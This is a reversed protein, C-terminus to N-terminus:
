AAETHQPNEAIQLGRLGVLEPRPTPLNFGLGVKEAWEKRYEVDQLLQAGYRSSMETDAHGHWYNVLIMRAESRQLVAERFRRFANFRINTRGIEKLVPQLSDRFINTPGLMTGTATEFLFGQKRNGVFDALLRALSSHLDIERFGTDTKPTFEIGGKKGRQQRISVISCDASLHKDIELALVESIRMGTGALLAFLVRYRGKAKSVINTVEKPTLTPRHQERPNVRPLCIATLDWERPYIQKLKADVASKIVKQVVQFYSVITKDKFRPQGNQVSSRMKAILAKAEPNDISALPMDGIEENLYAVATEYGSITHPRIQTRKKSHVIRGAEMEAIWWAAQERFTTAPTIRERIKEIDLVGAEGMIRQLSLVADLRDRCRGLPVRVEQQNQQGPLDVRYRGYALETPFWPDSKKRGKQYVYGRQRIVPGASGVGQVIRRDM